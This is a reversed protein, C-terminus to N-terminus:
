GGYPIVRAKGRRQKNRRTVQPLEEMVAPSPLGAANAFANEANVEDAFTSPAETAAEHDPDEVDTDHELMDDTVAGSRLHGARPKPILAEPDTEGPISNELEEDDYNFDDGLGDSIETVDMDPRVAPVAQHVVAAPASAAPGVGVASAIEHSVTKDLLNVLYQETSGTDGDSLINLAKIKKLLGPPIDLEVIM